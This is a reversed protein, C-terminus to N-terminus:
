PAYSACFAAIRTGGISLQRVHRSSIFTLRAHAMEMKARSAIMSTNCGAHPKVMMMRHASQVLIKVTQKRVHEKKAYSNRDM